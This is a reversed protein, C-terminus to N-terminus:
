TEMETQGATKKECKEKVNAYDRETKKDMVRERVSQREAETQQM